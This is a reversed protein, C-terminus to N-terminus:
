NGPTWHPMGKILRVAEADITPSVSQVVQISDISGDKRVIFEIIARGQTKSKFDAEPYHLNQRIYMMLAGPFSPMIISRARGMAPLTDSPPVLQERVGSNGLEELAPQKPREKPKRQQAFSEPPATLILTLFTLTALISKSKM